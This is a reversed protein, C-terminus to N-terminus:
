VHLMCQNIIYPLPLMIEQGKLLQGNFITPSFKTDEVGKNSTLLESFDFGSLLDSNDPSKYILTFSFPYCRVESYYIKRGNKLELRILKLISNPENVDPLYLNMLIQYKDIPFNTSEISLLYKRKRIEDVFGKSISKIMSDENTNQSLLTVFMAVIAKSLLLSDLNTTFYHAQGIKKLCLSSEYSFKDVLKDFETVYNRGLFNNDKECLSYFGAGRQQQKGKIENDCKIYKGMDLVTARTQNGLSAPPVHEYSLRDFWKGCVACYGSKKQSM